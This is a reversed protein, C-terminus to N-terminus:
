VRAQLEAARVPILNEFRIDPSDIRPEIATQFRPLGVPGLASLIDSFFRKFLMIRAQSAPLVATPQKACASRWVAISNLVAGYSPSTNSISCLGQSTRVKCSERCYRRLRLCIAIDPQTAGPTVGM